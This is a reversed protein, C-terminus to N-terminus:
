FVLICALFVIRHELGASGCSVCCVFPVCFSASLVLSCMSQSMSEDRLHELLAKLCKNHKEQTPAQVLIDDSINIVRSIGATAQRFTNQFIESVSCIGFILRKYTKLGLSNAFTTIYRSDPHIELQHYGSKLDLKSFVKSDTLEAIVQDITPMDYHECKM